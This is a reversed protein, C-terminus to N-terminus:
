RLKPINMKPINMKPTNMQQQNSIQENMQKEHKTKEDNHANLREIFEEYKWFPMNMIETYTLKNDPSNIFDFENQLLNTLPM